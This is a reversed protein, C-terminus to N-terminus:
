KKRFYRIFEPAAKERADSIRKVDVRARQKAKRQAAQRDLGRVELEVIYSANLALENTIREPRRMGVDAPSRQLIVRGMRLNLLLLGYAFETWKKVRPGPPKRPKPGAFFHEIAPMNTKRKPGRQQPEQFAPVHKWALARALLEWRNPDRQNIGFRRFLELYLAYHPDDKQRYTKLWRIRDNGTPFRALLGDYGHDPPRPHLIRKKEIAM